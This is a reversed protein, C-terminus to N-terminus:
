GNNSGTITVNISLCRPYTKADAIIDAAPSVVNVTYVKDKLLSLASIQTRVVDMGLKNNRTNKFANLNGNIEQLVDNAIAGTYTTIEVVINYDVVTPVDVKVTDNMPRVKRDDCIALVASLIESSPLVGGSCLPYLTVEGPATTVVAVDVISPHATAAWYQYAGSPGAVSFSSPALKIRNRLQEDSEADNGGNTKDINTAFSVFPQPDLIISVKGTDYGNGVVGATGCVAPITVSNTGIPVDIATATVFIANGDISQVRIGAPIQVANHGDVLDFRISCVAGSAPQRQVGVLEGLYELMNGTSFHVLCQRIAQNGSICMLQMEYVFANAILIEVDAPALARGLAVELRQQLRQLKPEVSEEFIVPIIDAM